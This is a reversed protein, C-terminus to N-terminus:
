KLSKSKSHSFFFLEMGIVKKSIVVQAASSAKELDLASKVISSTPRPPSNSAVFTILFGISDIIVGIEMSWLSNRPSVISSIASVLAPIILFSEVVITPFCSGLTADIRLNFNNDIQTQLKSYEDVLTTCADESATLKITLQEILMDRAKLEDEVLAMDKMYGLAAKEIKTDKQISLVWTRFSLRLAFSDHRGKDLVRSLWTIAWAKTKVRHNQEEVSSLRREKTFKNRNKNTETNLKEKKKPMNFSDSQKKLMKKAEELKLKKEMRGHEKRISKLTAAADKNTTLLQKKKRIDALEDKLRTVEPSGPINDYDTVSTVKTSNANDKHKKTTAAEKLAEEEKKATWPCNCHQLDQTM